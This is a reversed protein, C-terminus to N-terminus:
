SAMSSSRRDGPRGRRAADVITEINAVPEGDDDVIIAGAADVAALARLGVWLPEVLPDLVKDPAGSGYIQPRVTALFARAGTTDDPAAAPEGPPDPHAIGRDHAFGVRGAGDIM